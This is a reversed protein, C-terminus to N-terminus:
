LSHYYVAYYLRGNDVLESFNSSNRDYVQSYLDELANRAENYGKNKKDYNLVLKKLENYENTGEFDHTLEHVIVNQLTKGTDANPNLIIQRTTNGNEDTSTKWIANINNDKFLEANYTAQINRGNTVRKITRVTDNNVDVNYKKASEEYTLERTSLENTTKNESYSYKKDINNRNNETQESNVIRDRVSEMSNQIIGKTDVKGTAEIDQIAEKLETDTLQEINNLKNVANTAKGVGISAGAMLIASLAGDIGSTIARNLMNDWNAKDEGGTITATIESAPEM